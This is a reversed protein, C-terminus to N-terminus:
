VGKGNRIIRQVDEATSVRISQGRIVSLVEVVLRFRGPLGSPKALYGERSLCAVTPFLAEVLKAEAGARDSAYVAEHYLAAIKVPDGCAPAKEEARAWTGGAVLLLGVFAMTKTM